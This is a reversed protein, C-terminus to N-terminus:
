MNAIFIWIECRTQEDKMWKICCWKWSRSRCSNTILIGRWIWDSSRDRPAISFNRVGSALMKLKGCGLFVVITVLNSCKDENSVTIESNKNINPASRVCSSFFLHFNRLETFASINWPPCKLLYKYRILINIQQYKLEGDKNMASQFCKALRCARCQNRHTKDVPCRGKLEGAAKCTYIRNRHISRKFFGSCGTTPTIMILLASFYFIDCFTKGDCSFIGYHKGIVPFVEILKQWIMFFWDIIIVAVGIVM